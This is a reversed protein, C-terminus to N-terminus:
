KIDVRILLDFSIFKKLNAAAHTAVENVDIYKCLAACIEGFNNGNIMMELMYSEDVTLACFQVEYQSRWVICTSINRQSELSFDEEQYSLWVPITNWHCAMRRLSPHVAFTLESWRQAPILAIDEITMTVSDAADFSETLLWEFEAMEILYEPLSNEGMFESLKKGYWRISRFHSPYKVIFNRTFQNFEDRGLMQTLVKFDQQLAEQLRLYYAQHYISLRNEVIENEIVSKKELLFDQFNIQLQRLDLM